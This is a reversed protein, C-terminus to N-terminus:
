KVLIKKGDKIMVGRFNGNVLQGNLNYRRTDGSQVPKLSVIGDTMDIECEGAFHGSINHEGESRVSYLTFDITLYGVNEEEAEAYSITANGGLGLGLIEGEGTAQMNPLTTTSFCYDNGRFKITLDDNGTASFGHIRGDLFRYPMQIIVPEPEDSYLKVYLYEEAPHVVAREIAHVDDGDVGVHFENPNEPVYNYDYWAKEEYIVGFSMATNADYCNLNVDYGSQTKKVTLTGQTALGTYGEVLADFFHVKSLKSKSLDIVTGIELKPVTIAIHTTLTPDEGPELQGVCMYLTTTMTNSEDYFATRCPRNYLDENMKRSQLLGNELELEPLDEDKTNVHGWDDCDGYAMDLTMYFSSFCEGYENSLYSVPLIGTNVHQGTSNLTASLRVFGHAYNDPIRNMLPAFYKVGGKNFGDLRVFVAEDITVPDTFVFPLTLYDYNLGVGAASGHHQIKRTDLQAIALPNEDIAGEDTLRHISATIKANQEIEGIGQVWMGRVTYAKRPTEFANYIGVVDIKYDEKSLGNMAYWFDPNVGEQYGCLPTKGEVAITIGNATKYTAGGCTHSVGDVTVSTKGGVKFRNIPSQYTDSVYGDAFAELVPSEYVNKNDPNGETEHEYGYKLTLDVCDEKSVRNGTAPDTYTWKFSKSDVSSLNTWTLDTNDPYYAWQVPAKYDQTMGLNFTGVPEYYDATLYPKGLELMDFFMSDGDTGTYHFRFRVKKGAYESLDCTRHFISFGESAMMFLEYADADKFEEWYNYIPNWKTEGEVQVYVRFNWVNIRETFEDKKQDYKSYDFMYFPNSIFYFSLADGNEVTQLPSDLWENQRSTSHFLIEMYYDGDPVPPTYLGVQYNIFWTKQTGEYGNSHREWGDPLWTYDVGDWDEFSECWHISSAPAKKVTEPRKPLKKSVREGKLPSTSKFRYGDSTERVQIELGNPLTKREVVKAAKMKDMQTLVTQPVASHTQATVTTSFAAMLLALAATTLKRM